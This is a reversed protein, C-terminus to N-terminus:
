CWGGARGGERVKKNRKAPPPPLGASAGGGPSALVAGGLRFDEPTTESPSRRRSSFSSAGTGAGLGGGITTAAAVARAAAAASAVVASAGPGSAANAAGFSDAGGVDISNVLPDPISCHASDTAGGAAASVSLPRSLVPRNAVGNSAASTMAAATSTGAAHLQYQQRLFSSPDSGAGPGMVTNASGASIGGHIPAPSVPSPSPAPSSALAASSAGGGNSPPSFLSAFPVVGADRRGHVGGGGAATAAAVAAVMETDGDAMGDGGDKESAAAIEEFVKARLKQVQSLSSACPVLAVSVCFRAEFIRCIWCATPVTPLYQCVCVRM